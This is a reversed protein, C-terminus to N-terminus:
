EGLLLSRIKTTLRGVGYVAALRRALEDASMTPEQKRLIERVAAVERPPIEDLARPGRTRSVFPPRGPLRVIQNSQGGRRGEHQQVLRGLRQRRM